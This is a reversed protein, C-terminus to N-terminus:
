EIVEAKVCGYAGRQYLREMRGACAFCAALALLVSGANHVLAGAVILAGAGALGARLAHIERDLKRRAPADAEDYGSAGTAATEKIAM